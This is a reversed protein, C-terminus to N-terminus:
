SSFQSLGTGVPVVGEAQLPVQDKGEEVRCLRCLETINQVQGPLLGYGNEAGQEIVQERGVVLLRGYNLVLHFLGGPTSSHARIRFAAKGASPHGTHHPRSM